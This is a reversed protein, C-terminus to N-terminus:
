SCFQPISLLKLITKSKKICGTYASQSSNACSSRTIHRLIYLILVRFLAPGEMLSHQGGGGRSSGKQRFYLCFLAPLIVLNLFLIKTNGHGFLQRASSIYLFNHRFISYIDRPKLTRTNFLVSQRSSVDTKYCVTVLSSDFVWAPYIM